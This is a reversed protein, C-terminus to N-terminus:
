HSTRLLSNTWTFLIAILTTLTRVDSLEPLIFDCSTM